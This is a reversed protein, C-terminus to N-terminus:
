LMVSVAAANLDSQKLSKGNHQHRIKDRVNLYRRWIFMQTERGRETQRGRNLLLFQCVIDHCNSLYDCVNCLFSMISGQCHIPGQSHTMIVTLIFLFGQDAEAAEGESTLAPSTETTQVWSLGACAPAPSLWLLLSSAQLLFHGSYYWHDKRWKCSLWTLREM